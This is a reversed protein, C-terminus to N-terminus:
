LGIHKGETEYIGADQPPPLDQDAAHRPRLSNLRASVKIRSTTPAIELIGDALMRSIEVTVPYLGRGVAFAIDRANRRGTAQTFIERRGAPLDGDAWDASPMVRERFPSMLVPLEDLGDLRREIEWLLDQRFVGDTVPLPVDVVGDLDHGDISGATVAFASDLAAMLAVVQLEAVGVGDYRVLDAHHNDASERLATTWDDESIRGTRLLLEEAGPAGPSDVAVM